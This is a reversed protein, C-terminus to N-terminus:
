NRCCNRFSEKKVYYVSKLDTKGENRVAAESPRPSATMMTALAIAVAISTGSKSFGAKIEEWYSRREETKAREAEIIALIERADIGLIKQLEMLAYSDPANRHSRWNSITQPSVGMYISLQRDSDKGIKVLAADVIENINKM